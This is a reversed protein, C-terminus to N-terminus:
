RGLSGCKRGRQIPISAAPGPSGIPARCRVKPAWVERRDLEVILVLLRYTAVHIHAAVTSVATALSDDDMDTFDNAITPHFTTM